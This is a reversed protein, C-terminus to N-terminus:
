SVEYAGCMSLNLKDRATTRRRDNGTMAASQASHAVAVATAALGAV